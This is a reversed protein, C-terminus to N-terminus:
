RKEALLTRAQGADDLTLLMSVYDARLDDDAPREALLAEYQQRAEITRGLRHLLGARSVRAAYSPDGARDLLNLATEFSPRAADAGQRKLRIEGIARQTEPDGGTAAHYVGLWREANAGDHAHYALLGLSRRLQPEPSGAAIAAELVQREVATDGLAAAHRALRALVAPSRLGQAADILATRLAAKDGSALLADLYANFLGRDDDRPTVRGLLGIVQQAGGRETLLALWAVRAEGTASRARALLWDMQVPRPRPGWVFLLQRTVPDDPAANAALLRFVREGASKDGAELLRFGVQTRLAVPTSESEGLRRWATILAARQGSREAAETYAGLWRQPDAAALRELTPMLETFAGLAQLVAIDAEQAQPERTRSLHDLTERRLEDAVPTGRRWATLLQARYAAEDLRGRQRLLRLHVLAEPARGAALLAQGLALQDDDQHSIRYLREGAAAALPYAKSDMALHLLDRYFTASATGATGGELWRSVEIHRGASTALLAWPEQWSADTQTRMTDIWKLGEEAHGLALFLRAVEGLTSREADPRAVRRLAELSRTPQGLQEYLRAIQLWRTPPNTAAARAADTWRLAAARHGLRLAIQAALVADHTGIHAEGSRMAVQLLDDRGSALTMAAISALQAPPLQEIGATRADRLAQEVRGSAIALNLRLRLLEGSGDAAADVEQLRRLAEAPRGADATAQAWPALLLPQPDTASLYVALFQAAQDHQRAASFAAGFQPAMRVVDDPHARLWAHGRAAAGSADQGALLLMMQAQVVSADLAQPFRAAMRDLTALAAASEGRASRQRALLLYDAVEGADYRDILVALAEGHQQPTGIELSLRTLERQRAGTPQRRQLEALTDRYDSHRRASRYLEALSQLAALDGPQEAVWARLLAIGGDHDGHQDRARALAGISAASRDGAAVRAELMQLVRDAPLVTGSRLLSRELGRPILLLSLAIVVAVIAVLKWLQSRARESSARGPTKM